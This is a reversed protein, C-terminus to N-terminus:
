IIAILLLFLIGVGPQLVSVIDMIAYAAVCIVIGSTLTEHKQRWDKMGKILTGLILGMYPLVGIVGITTLLHLYVNHASDFYYGLMSQMEEYYDTLLLLQVSGQGHGVLKQGINANKFIEMLRTWVYGRGTGWSDNFRLYTDLFGFSQEPKVLNVYGMLFLVGIVSIGIAFILARSVIRYFRPSSIITRFLVLLVGAGALGGVLLIVHGMVMQAIGSLARHGPIMQFLVFLLIGGIMSICVIEMYRIATDRKSLYFVSALLYVIGTGLYTADTNSILIGVVGAMCTVGSLVRLVRDQTDIYVSMIIPLFLVLYLGYVFTNGWPSLFNLRDNMTPDDLLHFLDVGLFQILGFIVIILYSISIVTHILKKKQSIVPRACRMIVYAMGLIGFWLLGMKRDLCGSFSIRKDEAFIFSILNAGIFLVMCRETWSRNSWWSKLNIAPYGRCERIKEQYGMMMVIGFVIVTIIASFLYKESMVKEYGHLM